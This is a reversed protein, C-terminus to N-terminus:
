LTFIDFNRFFNRNLQRCYFYFWCPKYVGELLFLDSSYSHKYFGFVKSDNKLFFLTSLLSNFYLIFSKEFVIVSRAFALMSFYILLYTALIWYLFVILVKFFLDFCDDTRCDWSSNSSFLSLFILFKAIEWIINSFTILRIICSGLYMRSLCSFSDNYM